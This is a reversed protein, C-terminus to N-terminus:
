SKGAAPMPNQAEAAAAAAGAASAKLVDDNTEADQPLYVTVNKHAFEINNERFKEQIRQFVAKRIMFQGGPITKFKVRLIMASDDMERVGQSKIKGLLVSSLEEDKQVEKYIKKIIKRIKDIDTDYRVRLDLKTIIYDRSFNQISGMDGYPITFLMGRPHRVKISRLSIQQVMGKVGTTEIYDGVRFADDILFFLGSLIDKVLAQSGFGIAIGLIGAGALLPGINIGLANLVTLIGVIVLGTLIFKRVLTLITAKRSGGAGGEGDGGGDDDDPLEEKIKMDIFARIVDWSIYSILLTVFITSASKVIQIGVPIHIGWLEFIWFLLLFGILVAMTKELAPLYPELMSTQENEDELDITKEPPEINLKKLLDMGPKLIDKNIVRPDMLDARGSAILLLRNGMSYILSGLPFSLLTLLLPITLDKKHVILNFQWLIEFCILIVIGTFLWLMQIKGTDTNSSPDSDLRNKMIVRTIRTRDLYLVTLLIVFQLVGIASYYILFSEQPMGHVKLLFLSRKLIITISIFALSGWFYLMSSLCDQPVIRMHPEKPSYIFTLALYVARIMFIAPLFLMALEHLVGPSPVFLIFICLVMVSFVLLGAIDKLMRGFIQAFLTGICTPICQKHRNKMNEIFRYFFFETGFGTAVMLLFLLFQYALFGHGKNKSIEALAMSTDVGLDSSNSWIRSIREKFMSINKKTTMITRPLITIRNKSQHDLHYQKGPGQIFGKDEVLNKDVELNQPQVPPNEGWAPAFLASVIFMIIFAYFLRNAIKVPM